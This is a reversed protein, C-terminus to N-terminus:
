LSIHSIQTLKEFVELIELIYVKAKIILKDAHRYKHSSPASNSSTTPSSPTTSSKNGFTSTSAASPDTISHADEIAKSSFRDELFMLYNRSVGEEEENYLFYDEM